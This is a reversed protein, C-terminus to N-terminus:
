GKKMQESTGNINKAPNIIKHRISVILFIVPKKNIAIQINKTIRNRINKLELATGQYINEIVFRPNSVILM